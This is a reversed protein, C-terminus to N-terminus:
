TVVQCNMRELCVQMQYALELVSRELHVHSADQSIFNVIEGDEILFKTSIQLALKM